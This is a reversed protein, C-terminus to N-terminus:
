RGRDRDTTRDKCVLEGAATDPATSTGWVEPVRSCGGCWGPGAWCLWIVCLPLPQASCWYLLDQDCIQVCIYFVSRFFFCIFIYRPSVPRFPVFILLSFFANSFHMFVHQYLYLFVEKDLNTNRIKTAVKYWQHRRAKANLAQIGLGKKEKAGFLKGTAVLQVDVLLSHHASGVSRYGTVTGGRQWESCLSEQQTTWILFVLEACERVYIDSFLEWKEGNWCWEDHKRNSLLWSCLLCNAEQTWWHVYATTHYIKEPACEIEFNQQVM